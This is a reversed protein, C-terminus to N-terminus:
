EFLARTDTKVFVRTELLLCIFGVANKVLMDPRCIPRSFGFSVGVRLSITHSLLLFIANPYSKEEYPDHKFFWIYKYKGGVFSEHWPM